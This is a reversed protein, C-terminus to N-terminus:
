QLLLPCRDARPRSAETAFSGLRVDTGENTAGKGRAPKVAVISQGSGRPLCHSPALENHGDAVSYSRQLLWGIMMKRL